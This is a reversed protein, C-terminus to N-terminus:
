QTILEENLKPKIDERLGQLERVIQMMIAHSAYGQEALDKLDDDIAEGDKFLIRNNGHHDHPNHVAGAEDIFNQLRRLNELAIQEASGNSPASDPM